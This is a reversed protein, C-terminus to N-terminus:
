GMINYLGKNVMINYNRIDKASFPTVGQGEGSTGSTVGGSGGGPGGIINTGGGGGPPGPVAVPAGSKKIAAPNASLVDDTLFGKELNKARGIVMAKTQGKDFFEKEFKRAGGWWNNNYKIKGTNPYLTGIFKDAGFEENWIEIRGDDKAVQLFYSENKPGRFRNEPADNGFFGKKATMGIGGKSVADTDGGVLGGGQARTLGGLVRPKNTGGGEANMAKLNDTGIQEVAGKSMVFEGPELLAPVIDGSGTGPVVGGEQMKVGDRADAMPIMPIQAAEGMKPLEINPIEVDVGIGKLLGLAKNLGDILFNIGKSLGDSIWNIPGKWFDWLAKHIANIVSSIGNIMMFLPDLLRMPKEIIKIIRMVIAGLIVNMFFKLLSGFFNNVPKIAKDFSKGVMGQEKSELEAERADDAADDQAQRLAEAKDKDADVKGELNGLIKGLSEEIRILAPDLINKLFDLVDKLGPQKEEDLEAEDKNDKVNEEDVKLDEFINGPLLKSKDLQPPPLDIQSKEADVGSKKALVKNVFKEFNIKDGRKKFGEKREARTVVQGAITGDTTLEDVYQSYRDGGLLKQGNVGNAM